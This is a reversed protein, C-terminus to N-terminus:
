EPNALSAVSDWCVIDFPIQWAFARGRRDRYVAMTGPLEADTDKGPRQPVPLAKGTVALVREVMERGEVYAIGRRNGDKWLRVAASPLPIAKASVAVSVPPPVPPIVPPPAPATKASKSTRM